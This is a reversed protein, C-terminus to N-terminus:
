ELDARGRETAFITLLLLIGFLAQNSPFQTIQGYSLLAILPPIFLFMNLNGSRVLVFSKATLYVFASIRVFAIIMGLIGLEIVWRTSDWEVWYANSGLALGAQSNAGIGNGLLSYDVSLFGFTQTLIRLASDESHSADEFRQQFAELVQPAAYAAGIWIAMPLLLLTSIKKRSQASSSFFSFVLTSGLCIVAGLVALRSGGLAVTALNAAIGALGLKKLNTQSYLYLGTALGLLSFNALGAPASFLGSARVVGNNIFYASESYVETNILSGPASLVQAIVLPLQVLSYWSILRLIRIFPRSSCYSVAFFALLLPALYSRLGFIAVIPTVRGVFLQVITWLVLTIAFLTFWVPLKSKFQRWSPNRRFTIMAYLLALFLFIDRFVYMFNETGPIWKRIAGELFYLHVYGICALDFKSYQSQSDKLKM